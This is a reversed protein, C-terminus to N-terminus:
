MLIMRVRHIWSGVQADVMTTSTQFDQIAVVAAVLHETAVVHLARRTLLAERVLSDARTIRRVERVSSIKQM